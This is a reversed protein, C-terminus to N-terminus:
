VDIFATVVEVLELLQQSGYRHSPRRELNCLQELQTLLQNRELKSDIIIPNLIPVLKLTYYGVVLTSQSPMTTIPIYYDSTTSQWRQGISTVEDAHRVLEINQGGL